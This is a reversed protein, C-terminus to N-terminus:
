LPLPWKDQFLWSCRILLPKMQTPLKWFLLRTHNWNQVTFFFNSHNLTRTLSFTSLWLSGIWVHVPRLNNVCTRSGSTQASTENRAPFVIKSQGKMQFIVWHGIKQVLYELAAAPSLCIISSSEQLLQHTWLYLVLQVEGLAGHLTLDEVDDHWCM